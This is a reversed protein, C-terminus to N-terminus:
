LSQAPTNTQTHTHCESTVAAFVPSVPVRSPLKPFQNNALSVRVIDVGSLLLFVADPFKKLGCENFMLEKTVKADDCRQVIRAAEVAM